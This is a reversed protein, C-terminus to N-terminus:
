IVSKIIDYVAAVELYGDTMVVKKNKPKDGINFWDIVAIDENRKIHEVLEDAIVEVAKESIPKDTVFNFRYLITATNEGEVTLIVSYLADTTILNKDLGLIPIEGKRYLIMEDDNIYNVLPAFRYMVKNALVIYETWTVPLEYGSISCKITDVATLMELDFDKMKIMRRKIEYKKNYLVCIPNYNYSSNYLGM